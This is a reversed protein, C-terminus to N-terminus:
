AVINTSGFNVDLTPPHVTRTYVDDRRRHLSDLFSCYRQLIHLHLHGLQLTTQIHCYVYGREVPVLVM